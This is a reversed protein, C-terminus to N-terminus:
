RIREELEALTAAKELIKVTGKDQLYTAMALPLYAKEGKKHDTESLYEVYAVGKIGKYKKLEFMPNSRLHLKFALDEVKLVEDTIRSM